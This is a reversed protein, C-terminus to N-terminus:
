RCGTELHKRLAEMKRRHREGAPTGVAAVYLITGCPKHRYRAEYPKGSKVQMATM